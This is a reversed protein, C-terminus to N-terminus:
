KIAVPQVFAGNGASDWAALRVWAQGTLDVPVDFHHTGFPGLDTAPVIKRRTRAGDGWVVEVFDLPFTWEIDVSVTHTEGAPASSTRRVAFNTLLVEGSTVFYDGVRLANVIPAWNGAAPLAGIKLYNVPNNAYVDSGDGQERLDSVAQLFKPPTNKGVIWNNMDSLLPLCRYECLRTESGDLGMGWRFGVGRFNPDLFAPTDKIADPNGTSEKTRPHPLFTLSNERRAMELFEAATTVRYVTGYKPDKGIFSQGPTRGQQWYVPRSAILDTYGGLERAVDGGAMATNPMVTFSASSLRRAAAYYDAQAKFSGGEDVPAAITIGAARLVELDPVKAGRGAERERAVRNMHLDSAMVQYGPLTKFRDGRTFAAAGRHAADARGPSVYFYVPMRQLSGARANRLAGDEAQRVGFGFSAGTQQYWNYGLHSSTERAWFFNHPPPMAAISGGSLDAVLIRDGSRVTVPAADSDGALRKTQQARGVDTWALSSNAPASVGTLGAEYKYAVSRRTTSAVADQRFLNTGKYFTYQLRGRFVGLTMRGFSVELQTGETRVFCRGPTFTASARVIESPDRPLGPQDLVGKQPPTLASTAAGSGSVDLPADWFANWKYRRLLEDTIPIGLGALADLQQNTIRRVGSVVRFEPRANAAVTRWVGGTNTAIEKIL